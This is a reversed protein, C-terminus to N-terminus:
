YALADSQHTSGDAKILHYFSIKGEKIIKWDVIIIPKTALPKDDIPLEDDSIIKMYTKMEAERQDNDVEAEVQEDLKEDWQEIVVINAEDKERAIRDEVEMEAKMQAELKRAVEEDFEIQDKKKLPKEYLVGHKLTM